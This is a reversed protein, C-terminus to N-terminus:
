QVASPTNSSHREPYAQYPFALVLYTRAPALATAWPQLWPQLGPKSNEYGYSIFTTLSIVIQRVGISFRAITRDPPPHSEYCIKLGKIGAAKIPAPIAGFPIRVIALQWRGSHGAVM